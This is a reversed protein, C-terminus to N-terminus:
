EDIVRYTLPTVTARLVQDKDTHDACAQSVLVKEVNKRFADWNTNKGERSAIAYASRLLENSEKIASM